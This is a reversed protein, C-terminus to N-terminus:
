RIVMRMQYENKRMTTSRGTSLPTSGLTRACPPGCILGEVPTSCASGICPPHVSPCTRQVALAGLPIELPPTQPYPYKLLTLFVKSECRYDLDINKEPKRVNGSFSESAPIPDPKFARRRSRATLCPSMCALTAAMWSLVTDWCCLIASTYLDAIIV